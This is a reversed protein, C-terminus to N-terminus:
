RLIPKIGGEEGVALTTMIPDTPKNIPPKGGEEGIAYTTMTGGEYYGFTISPKSMGGNVETLEEQTLELIGESSLQMSFPHKM